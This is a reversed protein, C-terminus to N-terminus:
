DYDSEVVRWSGDENRELVFGGAYHDRDGRKVDEFRQEYRQSAFAGRVRLALDEVLNSTRRKEKEIRDREAKKLAEVISKGDAIYVLDFEAEVRYRRPGDGAVKQLNRFVFGDPKVHERPYDEATLLHEGIAAQMAEEGPRLLACGVLLALVLVLLWHPSRLSM